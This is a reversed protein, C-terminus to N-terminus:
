FPDKSNNEKGVSSQRKQSQALYNDVQLNVKKRTEEIGRELGRVIFQYKEEHSGLKVWAKRDIGLERFFEESEEESKPSICIHHIAAVIQEYHNHSNSLRICSSPLTLLLQNIYNNENQKLLQTM